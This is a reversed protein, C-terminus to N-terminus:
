RDSRVSWCLSGTRAEDVGAVAVDERPNMVTQAVVTRNPVEGPRAKVMSWTPSESTDDAQADQM